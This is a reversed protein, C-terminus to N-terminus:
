NTAADQMMQLIVEEVERAVPEIEPNAFAKMM